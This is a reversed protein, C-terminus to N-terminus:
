GNRKAEEKDIEAAAVLGDSEMNVLEEALGRLAKIQMYIKDRTETATLSTGLLAETLKHELRKMAEIFAEDELLAKAREGLERDKFHNAM